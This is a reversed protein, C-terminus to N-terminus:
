NFSCNLEFINDNDNKSNNLNFIINDTLEKSSDYDMIFHVKDDEEYKDKINNGLLTLTEKNDFGILNM